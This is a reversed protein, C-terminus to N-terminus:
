SWLHLNEGGKEGDNGGLVAVRPHGIDVWNRCNNVRNRLWDLWAGTKAAGVVQISWMFLATVVVPAIEETALPHHRGRTTEVPVFNDITLVPHRGDVVRVWKVRLTLASEFRPEVFSVQVLGSAFAHTAVVFVGLRRALSGSKLQKM